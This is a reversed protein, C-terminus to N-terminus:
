EDYDEEISEVHIIGTLLGYGVMAVAACLAALITNRKKNPFDL